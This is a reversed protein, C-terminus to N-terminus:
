ILMQKVFIGRVQLLLEKGLKKELSRMVLFAKKAYMEQHIPSRLPAISQCPNRHPESVGVPQGTSDLLIGKFFSEEV